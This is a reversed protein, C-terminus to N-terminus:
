ANSQLFHEAAMRLRSAHESGGSGSRDASHQARGFPQDAQVWTGGSPAGCRGRRAEIARSLNRASLKGWGERAAIEAERAPLRFLDAPSHLWGEDYFEQVTKEGLGDIDFAPRSVFHILREVRQAPCILGGTCSEAFVVKRQQQILLSALEQLPQELPQVM